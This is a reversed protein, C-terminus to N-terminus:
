RFPNKLIDLYSKIFPTKEPVKSTLNYLVSPLKPSVKLIVLPRKSTFNYISFFIYIICGFCLNVKARNFTTKIIAILKKLENAFPCSVSLTRMAIFLISAGSLLVRIGVPMRFQRLHEAKASWKHSRSEARNYRSNSNCINLMLWGM